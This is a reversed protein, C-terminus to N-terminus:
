NRVIINEYHLTNQNIAYNPQILGITNSHIKEQVKVLKKFLGFETFNICKNTTKQNPDQNSNTKM